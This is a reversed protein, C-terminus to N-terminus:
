KTVSITTSATNKNTSNDTASATITHSGVALKNVATNVQCTTAGTCTKTVTGDLAITITAIGSSDSATIKISMSGKDPVVSGDTPTTITVVPPTTDNPPPTPTVTPTVGLTPTTLPNVTITSGVSTLTFVTADVAALQSSASAVVTTTVNPNTTNAGFQLTALQFTGNPPTQVHTPDLGIVLDIKGSANADAMTTQKIVRGWASTTLTIEATLKVVAPNFTLQVNVFATPSDTTAWLQMTGNPPLSLMAPLVTVTAQHTTARTTVQQPYLTAMTFVLGIVLFLGIGLYPAVKPNKVTRMARRYWPEPPAAVIVSDRTHKGQPSDQPHTAASTKDPM